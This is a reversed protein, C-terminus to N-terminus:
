LPADQKPGATEQPVPNALPSSATGQRGDAQAVGPMLLDRRPFDWQPVHRPCSRDSFEAFRLTTFNEGRGAYRLDAASGSGVSPMRAFRLWARFHCNEEKLRRLAALSGQEESLLAMAPSVPVQAPREALGAPCAPVPMWEPALSLLGRRLRYRDAAENSEVSVFNWCLPNAPFPTLAADLLRSDPDQRHAHRRVAERALASAHDQVAVFALAAALGLVLGSRGELGARRQAAGLLLALLTLAALSAWPLYGQITFHLPPGLLLLVAAIRLWRRGIMMAMPIGLSIWFFPELIFVLDGYRWASDFPHFPHLGYSNLYDMALHLGFGAALALGFGRRASRSDRLLRRAGPWLLWLLAALLLAQPLAYLLTHTHGRHHLLYGIPAPLLPTLVLDLDPFNGALACTVLLLRRRLSQRASDTERPLCRHVFEGAVLSAVTHSLNDM